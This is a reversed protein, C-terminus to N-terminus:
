LRFQTVSIGAHGALESAIEEAGRCVFRRAIYLVQDAQHSM